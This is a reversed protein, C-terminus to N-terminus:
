RPSRCATWRRATARTTCTTAPSPWGTRTTSAAWPSCRPRPPRRCCPIARPNGQNGVAACSWSARRADGREAAQSLRTRAPLVGRLRRRLERQRHPHRLAQPQAVVWELGRRIDDHRIRRASGCRSWCSAAGRLRPRPLPRGLARGNGCAVVSTMMGHWSSEDPPELDRRRARPDNIDVYALIRNRPSVLDPHAYFGSDLFAITVGRGRLAGARVAAGADAPDARRRSRTGGRPEIVYGLPARSAAACEDCLGSEPRWWPNNAAVLLLAGPSLQEAHLTDGLSATCFPCDRPESM